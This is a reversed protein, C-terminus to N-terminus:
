LPFFKYSCRKCKLAGNDNYPVLTLHKCSPCLPTVNGCKKCRLADLGNSMRTAAFLTHKCIPCHEHFSNVIGRKTDLLNEDGDDFHAM